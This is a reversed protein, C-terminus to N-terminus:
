LFKLEKELGNDAPPLMDGLFVRIGATLPTWLWATRWTSAPPSKSSSQGISGEAEHTNSSKSEQGEQWSFLGKGELSVSM